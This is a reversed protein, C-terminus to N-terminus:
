NLWAKIRVKALVSGTSLMGIFPYLPKDCDLFFHGEGDEAIIKRGNLSFVVPVQRKGNIEKENKFIVTCRIRDGRRAM